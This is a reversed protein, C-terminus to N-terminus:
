TTGGTRLNGDIVYWPRADPEPTVHVGDITIRIEATISSPGVAAIGGERALWHHEIRAGIFANVTQTLDALAEASITEGPKRLDEARTVTFDMADSTSDRLQAYMDKLNVPM